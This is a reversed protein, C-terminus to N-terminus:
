SHVSSGRYVEMACFPPLKVKRKCEKPQRERGTIIMNELGTKIEDAWWNNIEENLPYIYIKSDTRRRQLIIWHKILIGSVILKKWHYQIQCV